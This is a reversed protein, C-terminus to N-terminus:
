GTVQSLASLRMKAHQFAGVAQKREYLDLAQRAAAAAAGEQGSRALVEALDLHANAQVELFDTGSARRVATEALEAAEGHSGRSALIKARACRWEVESNVDDPSSTTESVRSFHEAEDARGLEYLAQALLAATTSLHDREGMGSLAEYDRRLEREAAKPNGALMEVPASDLSVLAALLKHGLDEYLTRSRRYLDRAEEFRGALGQLHSLACLVLAQAGKSDASQMLITQCRALADPVPTPGYAASLAYTPLYKLEQRRDGALRAEEVARRVADEARAYQCGLGHVGALLGWAKALASHDAHRELVAIADPVMDAVVESWGEPDTFSRGHMRVILADTRLREDGSEWTADIAQGLYNDAKAFEGGAILVEGLDPLFSLRTPNREELAAVARELLNTAAPIDQRALARRGASGLREATRTALLRGTGDLPGLERRYRLATELHYATIEEYEVSRVGTIRELWAVFREHLEARNRKLLGGYAADRIVIHRFSFAREDAFTTDDPRVLEKETLTELRAPVSMAVASPCLECVAGVFFVQGVISAHEMVTREEADLRDLRATVLASITPPIEVTSLDGTVVWQGNVKALLGDEVLMSLSQEVFLPNGEATLTIRSLVEAPVASTGLLQSVIQEGEAASLPELCIETAFARGGTWEPRADRLDQRASCLILIPADVATDCVHEILDLFSPEAWHIDDFVVIVPRRRALTELLRRVAWFTEQLPFSAPSLGMVAALRDVVDVHEAGVLESLMARAAGRTDGSAAGSVQAVAETLAWFTIGEGYPLCHGRMVEVDPGASKLFDHILRSKGVGASGLVTVLECRPADVARGMAQRLLQLEAKRGVMPTDLRRTVGQAGEVVGVLRYAPVRDTKGKLALAPVPVAQVADRVLRYTREGILIENEPAAQELRAAVNVTDGTVMRQRSSVDGAVVEGTNVGTRNALRVGWGKELEQNLGVLAHQMELAARVARLADDEHLHPLGFVAMVADGIFKEVTGGHRELVRQFEDFYRTMVERLSESDLREGLDTSGRLDSFVVTVTRRVENVLAPAVLSTGCFGCLRFRAPNEEGCGPCILV